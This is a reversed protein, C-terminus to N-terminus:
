WSLLALNPALIKYAALAWLLGAFLAGIAGEWSKGPSIDPALKHQGFRKGIFYAATDAIWILSLVYLVWKPHLYHLACLMGFAPVLVWCGAIVGFIKSDWLPKDKPFRTLLWLALLWFGLIFLPMGEQLAERGLWKLIALLTLAVFPILLACGIRSVRTKFGALLTWEWLALLFVIGSVMAFPIPPLFFIGFIVLPILILATILRQKLM